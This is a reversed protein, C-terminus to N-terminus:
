NKQTEYLGKVFQKMAIQDSLFIEYIAAKSKKCEWEENWLNFKNLKM